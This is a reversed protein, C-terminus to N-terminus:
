RCGHEHLWCVVQAHCGETAIALANSTKLPYPHPLNQLWEIVHLKGTSAAFELVMKTSVLAYGDNEPGDFDGANVKAVHAALMELHGNRAM